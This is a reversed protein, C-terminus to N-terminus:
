GIRDEAVHLPIDMGILDVHVEHASHIVGAESTCGSILM